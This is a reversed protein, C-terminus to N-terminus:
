LTLRAPASVNTFMPVRTMSEVGGAIVIDQTGSMVAQAAFHIAQQSSGCQRDVTTGPVSLPLDSSLVCSRALNGANESVQSVCGFIVDDVDKPDLTPVKNLLSNLVAAGLTAPHINRLSGKNRGCATRTCQVIYASM